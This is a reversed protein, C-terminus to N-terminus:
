SETQRESKEIGLFALQPLVILPIAAWLVAVISQGQTFECRPLIFYAFASFWIMGSIGGWFGIASRIVRNTFVPFFRPALQWIFYVLLLGTAISAFGSLREDLTLNNKLLIGAVALSYFGLIVAFIIAAIQKQRQIKDAQDLKQFEQKLVDMRGIRGTATEFAKQNNLGSKMQREVEERLHGELEELPVPTKIGAALMQQRWETISKELDFM